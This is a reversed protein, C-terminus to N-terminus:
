LMEVYGLPFIGTAGRLNGTVWEGDISEINIIDGARFGLDGDEVPDFDWVARCQKQSSAPPPPPPPPPPVSFAPANSFALDPPPPPPANSSQPSVQQAQVHLEEMRTGEPAVPRYVEFSGEIMHAFDYEGWSVPQPNQELVRINQAGIRSHVVATHNPAGASKWGNGTKFKASTFQLIDGPMVQDLSIKAGFNYGIVPATKANKMAENALTWCEGDGVRRGLNSEAFAVIAPGYKKACLSLVEPPPTEFPQVNAEYRAIDNDLSQELELHVKTRDKKMIDFTDFRVPGGGSFHHGGTQTSMKHSYTEGPSFWPEPPPQTQLSPQRRIEGRSIGPQLTAKGGSGGSSGSSSPPPPPPPPSNVGASPGSPPPPPPPPSGFSATAAVNQTPKSPPLLESPIDRPSVKEVFNMPFMGVVDSKGPGWIVKGFSWNDDVADTVEIYVGTQFPLDGEEGGPFNDVSKYLSDVNFKPAPPTSPGSPVVPTPSAPPGPPSPPAPPGPPSSPSNLMRSSPPSMLNQTSSQTSALKHIRAGITSAAHLDDSDSPPSPPPPAPKRIETTPSTAQKLIEVYNSPFMGSSGDEKSGEWWDDNLKNILTIEDGRHLSLDNEDSAEFDYVARLITADRTTQPVNDNHAVPSTSVSLHRTSQQGPIPMPVGGAGFLKSRLDRVSGQRSKATEEEKINHKAVSIAAASAVVSPKSRSESRLRDYESESIERVYNSPFIGVRGDVQGRWWDGNKTLVKVPTGKEMGLDGVKSSEFTYLVEAYTPEEKEKTSPSPPLPVEDEAESDEAVEEVYNSPFLGSRDDIRGKWWAGSSDDEVTIIDGQTLSLGGQRTSQLDYLARVRRKKQSGSTKVASISHNPSEEHHHQAHEIEERIDAVKHHTSDPEKPTSAEKSEHTSTFHSAPTAIARSVPRRSVSSPTPNLAARSHQNKPHGCKCLGFKPATVDIRFEDCPVSGSSSDEDEDNDNRAVTSRAVVSRATNSTSTFTSSPTATPASSATSNPVTNKAVVNPNTASSEQHPKPAPRSFSPKQHDARPHGCKCMGFESATVDVRYNDCAGSSASQAPVSPKAAPTTSSSASALKPASSQSLPAASSDKAGPQESARRRRALIAQLESMAAVEAQIIL